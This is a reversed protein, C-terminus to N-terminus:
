KSGETCPLMTDAFDMADYINAYISTYVKAGGVSTVSFGTSASGYIDLRGNTWGGDINWRWCRRDHTREMLELDAM